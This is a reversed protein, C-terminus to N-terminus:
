KSRINFNGDVVLAPFTGYALAECWANMASEEKDFWVRFRDGADGGEKVAIGGWGGDTVETGDQGRVTGIAAAVPAGGIEGFCVRNVDLHFTRNIPPYYYQGEGGYTGDVKEWASLTVTFEGYPEAYSSGGSIRETWGGAGVPMAAVLVVMVAILLCALKKMKQEKREESQEQGDRIL